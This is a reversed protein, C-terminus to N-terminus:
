IYVPKLLPNNRLETYEIEIEEKSNVEYFTHSSVPHIVEFASCWHRYLKGDKELYAREDLIDDVESFTMDGGCLM